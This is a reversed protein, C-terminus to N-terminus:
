QKEEMSARKEARVHDNSNYHHLTRHMENVSENAEEEEAITAMLEKSPKIGGAMSKSLREIM